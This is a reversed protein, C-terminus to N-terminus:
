VIKQPLFIKVLGLLLKIQEKEMSQVTPIAGAVTGTVNRAATTIRNVNLSTM